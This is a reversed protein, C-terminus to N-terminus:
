EEQAIFGQLESNYIKMEKRKEEAEAHKRDLLEKNAETLRL